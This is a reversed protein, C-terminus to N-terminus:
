KRKLFDYLHITHPLKYTIRPLVGLVAHVPRQPAERCANEESRTKEVGLCLGRGGILFNDIPLAHSDLYPFMFRSRFNM